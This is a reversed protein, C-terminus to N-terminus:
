ISDSVQCKLAKSKKKYKETMEIQKTLQEQVHILEKVYFMCISYMYVHVDSIKLHLTVGKTGM